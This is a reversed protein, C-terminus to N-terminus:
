KIELDGQSAEPHDSLVERQLIGESAVIKLLIIIIFPGGGENDNVLRVV